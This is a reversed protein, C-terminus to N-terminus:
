TAYGPTDLGPFLFRMAGQLPATLHAEAGEPRCTLTCTVQPERGLSRAGAAECGRANRDQGKVQVMGVHSQM